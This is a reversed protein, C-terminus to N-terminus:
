ASTLISKGPFTAASCRTSARRWFIMEPSILTGDFMASSEEKLAGGQDRQLIDRLAEARHQRHVPDRELKLRPLDDGQDSLVPGALGSQHVHEGAKILGVAALDPDVPLRDAEAARPIRDGPSDPHDVLM